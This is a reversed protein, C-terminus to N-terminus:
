INQKKSTKWYIGKLLTVINLHHDQGQLLSRTDTWNHLKWNQSERKPKLCIFRDNECFVIWQQRGCKGLFFKLNGIPFSNKCWKTMEVLLTVIYMYTIVFVLPPYQVLSLCFCVSSNENVSTPFVYIQIYTLFIKDLQTVSQIRRICIYSFHYLCTLIISCASLLVMRYVTYSYHYLCTLIISCASLLVLQYCFLWVLIVYYLNSLPCDLSVPWMICLTMCTCLCIFVSLFGFFVLMYFQFSSCCSVQDVFVFCFLLCVFLCFCFRFFGSFVHLELMRFFMLILYTNRCKLDTYFMFVKCSNGWICLNGLFVNRTPSKKPPDEPGICSKM